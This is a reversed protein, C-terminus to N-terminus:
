QRVGDTLTWPRRSVSVRRGSFALASCSVVHIGLVMRHLDDSSFVSKFREGAGKSGNDM